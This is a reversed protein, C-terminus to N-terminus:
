ISDRTKTKLLIEAFEATASAARIELENKATLHDREIKQLNVQHEYKTQHLKEEHLMMNKLRQIRLQKEEDFCETTAKIKKRISINDTRNETFLYLFKCACTCDDIAYYFRDL